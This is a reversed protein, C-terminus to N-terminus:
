LTARQRDDTNPVENRKKNKTLRKEELTRAKALEDNRRCELCYGTACWAGCRCRKFPKM